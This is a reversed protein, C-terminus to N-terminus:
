TAMTMIYGILMLTLKDMNKRLLLAWKVSQNVKKMTPNNIERSMAAAIDLM